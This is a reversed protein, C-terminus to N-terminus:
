VERKFEPQSHRLRLVFKTNLQLHSAMSCVRIMPPLLLVLVPNRIGLTAPGKGEVVVLHARTEPGAAVPMARCGKAGSRLSQSCNGKRDTVIEPQADDRLFGPRGSPTLDGHEPGGDTCKIQQVSESECIERDQEGAVPVQNLNEPAPFAIRTGLALRDNVPHGLNQKCGLYRETTQVWAHGLLFQIQELEGDGSHCLKACTRCIM